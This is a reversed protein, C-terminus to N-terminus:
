QIFDKRTFFLPAMVLVFFAIDAAVNAYVRARVSVYQGFIFWVAFGTVLCNWAWKEKQRFPYHVIFVLLIGWGVMAAGLVGYIFTKFATVDDPM